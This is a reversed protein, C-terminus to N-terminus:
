KKDIIKATGIKIFDNKLRAMQVILRSWNLPKSMKYCFVHM